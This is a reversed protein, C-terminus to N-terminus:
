GSRGLVLLKRGSRRHAFQREIRWGKATLAGLTGFDADAEILVARVRADRNLTEINTTWGTHHTENLTSFATYERGTFGLPVAHFGGYYIGVFYTGELRGDQKLYSVAKRYPYELEAHFVQGPPPPGPFPRYSRRYLTALSFVNAAILWALVMRRGWVAWRASIGGTPFGQPAVVLATIGAALVPVLIEAQYRSVGWLHERVAGFYAVQAASLFGVVALAGLWRGPTVAALSFGVVLLPALGVVYAASIAPINAAAARSARALADGEAAAPSGRSWAVIIALLLFVALPAARLLEKLTLERNALRFVAIVALPIAALFAPVRMLTGLIVVALLPVLRIKGPDPELYLALLVVSTCLAAWLSPEVLYSVHWFLPLSGLAAAGLLADSRAAQRALLGWFGWLFVLYAVFTPLRLAAPYPPLLAASIWLPLTRLPPHFDAGAIAGYAVPYNVGAFINGEASLLRHTGVLFLTLLAALLNRHNRLVRPLAGFALLVVVLAPLNIGWLIIAAPLEQIREWLLPVHERVGFLALQSLRLASSAHYVQDSWLSQALHPLTLATAALAALGGALPSVVLDFRSRFEPNSINWAFYAFCAVVLIQVALNDFRSGAPFGHM